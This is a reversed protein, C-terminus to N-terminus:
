PRRGVAILSLGIPPTIARELPLAWPAVLHEFLKVQTVSHATTKAVHANYLWGLLGIPNTYQLAVVELGSQRFARALSAKSYRRHHGLEADLPGFAAQVAPVFILIRGNPVVIDRFLSLARADDEIHELVNVCVVTDFRHRLLEASDCEELHRARLSFRPHDQMARQLLSVCHDNPELGVVFQAVDALQRSMTGIGAGVELVRAGVYPRLLEFVHASYRKAHQMIELDTAAYREKTQSFRRDVHNTSTLM